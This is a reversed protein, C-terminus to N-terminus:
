DRTEPKATSKEQAAATNMQEITWVRIRGNVGSFEIKPGGKGITGKFNGFRNDGTALNPVDVIVHGNVGSAKVEANIPSPLALEIGGNVGKISLGDETLEKVSMTIRGNIGQLDAPGAIKLIEVRGNVGHFRMAGDVNEVKLRGGLGAINLQVGAPVKLIARMRESGRNAFMQFLESRQERETRVTLREPSHEITVKRYKFHEADRVTRVLYLEAKGTSEAHKNKGDQPTQAGSVELKGNFDRVNVEAGSALEYSQRIEKAFKFDSETDKIALDKSDITPPNEPTTPEQEADAAKATEARRIEARSRCAAVVFLSSVLCVAM